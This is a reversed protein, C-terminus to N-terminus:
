KKEKYLRWWPVGPASHHEYHYGFFYCSFFALLHNKRQSSSKHVNDVNHLGRHPVFTGFYFLQFTSLIAPLIWFLWINPAPFVLLLLNYSVAMLLLQWVTVYQRLFNFYWKLFSAPHYDPDKETAVFRHHEHHKPLLKWYSNFAFLGIAIIGTVKNLTRNASVAGHMADHGTIFLGTYLHTQLLIFLYTVPNYFNIEGNLLLFTSVFWILMITWGIITGINGNSRQM